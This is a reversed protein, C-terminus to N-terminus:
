KKLFLRDLLVFLTIANLIVCDYDFNTISDELFRTGFHERISDEVKWIGDGEYRRM